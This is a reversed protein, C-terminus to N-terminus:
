LKLDRGQFALLNKEVTEPVLDIIRQSIDGLNGGSVDELSYGLKELLHTATEYSEPHVSTNDLPNNAGSIRLFGACQEYAKNGLRAVKLLQKREAYKGNEDRYNVINKAIASSVGAVYQLLSPTATNLDVGVSNVCDEVVGTLTDNLKKQNLDHQYQGVGIHKPDIKVLEAM